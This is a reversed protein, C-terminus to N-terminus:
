NAQESTTYWQSTTVEVSLCSPFSQWERRGDKRTGSDKIAGVIIKGCRWLIRGGGIGGHSLHFFSSGEYRIKVLFALFFFFFFFFSGLWSVTKPGRIEDDVVSVRGVLGEWSYTTMSFEM